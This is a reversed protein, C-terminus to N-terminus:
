PLGEADKVPMDDRLWVHVEGFSRAAHYNKAVWLASDKCCHKFDEWADPWSTLPARDIFVFAEPPAAQLRALLDREHENRWARIRESELWTPENQWGGDLAADANLDYAYIYPTASRRGALFLIYPDMGYIQVRADAPTVDSLYRAGQRLEWPFFDPSKFTDFYEQESRKKPTEGGGLIWVNRTLPSARMSGAVFVAYAAAVGLAAYRGLSRRRPAFRYTEWLLAVLVLIGIHTTATLPHFHYDFGKHQVVASAIGCVPALTLALMRRPLARLVVLAALLASVTLGLTAAGLPGEDGLIERASRAWIFRYVQPVDRVTVTLYSLIDGYRVLYLLPVSAGLAGGLAFALTRTRRPLAVNPDILVVAFQMATFFVFSSKGFWTLTSLAAVVVIRRFATRENPRAIQLTISPLLFWDSFSERQAQNWYSYLAYQGSLAVWTAVSWLARERWGPERKAVVGPLLYGVVAFSLGTAVLDLLHFRQEDGGGLALMVLHILHVLPGNVDRVDRYDIAGGRVAWAIYQFIGQDRGLTTLTVRHSADLVWFLPVVALMLPLVARRAFDYRSRPFGFLWRGFRQGQCRGTRVVRERSHREMEASAPPEDQPFDAQSM